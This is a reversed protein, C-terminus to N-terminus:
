GALRRNLQACAMHRVIVEPATEEVFHRVYHQVPLFADRDVALM